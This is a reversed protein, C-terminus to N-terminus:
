TGFCCRHVPGLEQNRVEIESLRSSSNRTPSLELTASSSCLFDALIKYAIKHIGTRCKSDLNQFFTQKDSQLEQWFV